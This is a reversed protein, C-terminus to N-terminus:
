YDGFDLKYPKHGIREEEPPMSMYDGYRLSLHQHFCSPIMINSAGFECELLPYLQEFSNVPRPYYLNGMRVTKSTNYKTAIKDMTKIIKSQPILKLVSSLCFKTIQKIKGKATRTDGDVYPSQRRAYLVALRHFAKYQRYYDNDDDPLNDIPYIDVYVGKEIDLKHNIYEIYTTGKLRLKAYPFPTKKDAYPTQLYYNKSLYQPAKEIFKLYNDRTMAIDLDDDWPIFGKHRVAGLLTGGYAFFEVGIKECVRKIEELNMMELSQLKKIQAETYIEKWKEM